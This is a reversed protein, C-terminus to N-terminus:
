LAIKRLTRLTAETGFAAASPAIVAFHTQVAGHVVVKVAGAALRTQKIDRCIAVAAAVTFVTRVDTGLASFLAAFAAHKAIVAADTLVTCIDARDAAIITAM